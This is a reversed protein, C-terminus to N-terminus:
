EGKLTWASLSPFERDARCPMVIGLAACDSTVMAGKNGNYHVTPVDSKSGLILRFATQLRVLLEPNFQACEGSSTRPIVSRWDPYTADVLTTRTESGNCKITAHGDNIVIDLVSGAKSSLKLNDLSARDIIHVGVPMELDHAVPVALLIHGDTAVLTTDASRVDIAIGNLYYRLDGKAAINLLAKITSHEIIM